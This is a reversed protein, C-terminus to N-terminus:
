GGGALQVRALSVGAAGAASGGPAAGRADARAPATSHPGACIFPYAFTERPPSTTAGRWRTHTAASSTCRISPCPSWRWTPRMKLTSIEAVFFDLERSRLRPLFDDWDRVQVRVGIAPYASIFRTLATTICRNWRIRGARRHEVPRGAAYPQVVGGPRSGRGDAPGPPGAPRLLRGIDTPVVGVASRLFLASGIQQELLQISRSLAPQSLRLRWPPARLAATSPWRSCM